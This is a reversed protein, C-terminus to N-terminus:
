CFNTGPMGGPTFAAAKVQLSGLREPCRLSRSGCPSKWAQLPTLKVKVQSLNSFFLSRKQFLMNTKLLPAFSQYRSIKLLVTNIGDPVSM